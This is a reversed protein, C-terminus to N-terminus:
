RADYGALTLENFRHCAVFSETQGPLAELPPLEWKCIDKVYRCRTHFVCGPPPNSPDPINGELVIRRSSGAEYKSISALLAETYPHRPSTYVVDSKAVEMIKGLYIVVVKDSIYEVVSLDHAIFLYSLNFEKQLDALLNLVQAQISVDLASVPEDCIILDPNLSLARAVGIRQRQGGSFQHPFKNIHEPSLGVLDLLQRARDLQEEKTGIKHIALPESIIQGINMRPDLSSYPDQFLMQIKERMKHMQQRNLELLDVQEDMAHYHISGETPEYLRVICRGITTKGSGSEGVMGLTEGMKISFDVGDVAKTNGVVRRFFGKQIPFYKKLGKVTLIDHTATAEKEQNM